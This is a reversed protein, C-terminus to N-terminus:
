SLNVVALTPLSTVSLSTLWVVPLVPAMVTALPWVSRVLSAPRSGISRSSLLDTFLAVGSTPLVTTNVTVRVLGFASVVVTLKAVASSM